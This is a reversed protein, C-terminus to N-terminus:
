VDGGYTFPKGDEGPRCLFVLTVSNAEDDEGLTMSLGPQLFANPFTITQAEDATIPELTVSKKKASDLVNEGKTFAGMLKMAEEVNETDITLKVNNKVLFSAQAESGTEYLTLDKTEVDGEIQPASKLPGLETSDVAVVYKYLQLKAVLEDIETQTLTKAM